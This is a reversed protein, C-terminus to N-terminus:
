PLQATQLLTSIEADGPQAPRDGAGTKKIQEIREFLPAIVARYHPSTEYTEPPNEEDQAMSELLERILPLPPHTAGNNRSAGHLLERNM